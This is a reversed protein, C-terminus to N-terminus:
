QKRANLSGMQALLVDLAPTRAEFWDEDDDGNRERGLAARCKDDLYEHVRDDSLILDLAHDAIIEDQTM